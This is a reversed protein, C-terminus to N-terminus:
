SNRKMKLFYLPLFYRGVKSLLFILGPKPTLLDSESGSESFSVGTVKFLNSERVLKPKRTQVLVSQSYLGETQLWLQYQIM